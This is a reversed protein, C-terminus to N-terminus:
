QKILKKTHGKSGNVVRVFYIGSPKGSLSFEMPSKVTMEDRLILEGYIGYVAVYVNGESGDDTLDLTFRGTTPNPYVKFMSQDTAPPIPEEVETGVLPADMTNCFQGSTTIYGRMYGNNYVKTGPLYNIKLGAIMTARGGGLVEFITGSGAVVITQTANYCNVQTSGVTINQLVLDTPVSVIVNVADSGSCGASGVTLTYTTTTPPSAVPNYIAPNSLWTTPSWSWTYPATGGIKTGILQVSSSTMIIDNGANVILANAVVSINSNVYFSTIVNGSMNSYECAGTTPTDWSLTTSIGANARFRYQILTGSGINAATTSAWSMLVKNGSRNVVLLGGTLAANASHYGEFTMMTTDFIMTLTIGGVNSCNTVNIPISLNGTCSNSVLGATTTIAAPTVTLMASNSNVSPTCTGSLVCRYLYGNMGTAAPNITLTATIAGSYPSVNSVNAWSTGSNASTQWQYGLGTGAGAVSFGISGGAYITQDVPHTSVSPQTNITAGGNIWTSFIIQGNIDSYECNGTTQTDWTLASTGPSGIFNLEVLTGGTAITAATTNSWTLYVKGASANSVCSLGLLAANANQYGTYTLIAPNYALALSFAAVGIFDTVNVPVVAALGPCVPAITQCTTFVNPLVTLLAANSYAVPTCTGSVKCQYQYGNMSLPANSITMTPTTVGSYTTNNALDAWSSGGSTKVQWQYGIAYGSATVSFTTSQLKAITKNEPHVSIAPVAYITENGDVFVSTIQSGNLATYECNGITAMDWALSTTGTAASFQLKILTDNVFTAPSTSSWSMYFKGGSANAVFTGTSLAGNLRSYGTYTLFSPNYSFVLSFAAVGTFNTVMVPVTINGPCFSATPLTTTVPNVVTLTVVDTYIVPTCTGTLRCRFKHGSYALITNTISLTATTVGSYPATNTLDTWNSGGDISRQWLYALATGSAATSFSTNQGLLSTKNIPQTSIIPPQDITATGNTFTAPLITGSTNAYECNGSTQTDWTLNTTSTVSTFRLKVMTGNGLNAPITNAWSIVIQSGTSNIILLGGNVTLATNLEQYGLYTLKTNDFGLALSIAGIGNCNTVNVPVAIEGPCSTVAGATTTITQSKLGGPWVIVFLLPLIKFILTKM